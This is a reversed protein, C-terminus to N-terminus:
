SAPATRCSASAGDTDRGPFQTLVTWDAPNPQPQLSVAAAQCVTHRQPGPWTEAVWGDMQGPLTLPCTGHLCRWSPQVPGRTDGSSGVPPGGGSRHRCSAAHQGPGAKVWAAGCGGTLECFALRSFVWRTKIFVRHAGGRQGGLNQTIQAGGYREAATRPM